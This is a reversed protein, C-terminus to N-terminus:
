LIPLNLFQQRTNDMVGNAGLTHYQMYLNEFNDREQPTAGGKKACQEYVALLRDRLFAQIGRKIINLQEAQEQKQRKANATQKIMFTVLAVFM